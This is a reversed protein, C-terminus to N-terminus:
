QAIDDANSQHETVEIVALNINRFCLKSSAKEQESIKVLEGLVWYLGSKEAKHDFKELNTRTDIDEKM